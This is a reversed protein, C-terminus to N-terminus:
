EPPEEPEAQDLDQSTTKGAQMENYIALFKDYAAGNGEPESLPPLASVSSLAGTLEDMATAFAAELNAIFSPWDPQSDEPPPPPEQDPPEQDPPEAPSEFLAQLAAIFETFATNLSGLPDQQSQNAAQEFVQQAELLGATQEETLENEALFSQVVTGVSEAVGTSKEQAVADVQATNIAALEDFFNIRLRVDSVGKFHGEQLLGIVGRQGEAENQEQGSVEAPDTNAPQQEPPGEQEDNTHVKQLGYAKGPNVGDVQM